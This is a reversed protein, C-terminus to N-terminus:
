LVTWRVDLVDDYSKLRLTESLESLKPVSHGKRARTKHIDETHRRDKGECGDRQRETEEAEGERKKRGRQTHRQRATTDRM